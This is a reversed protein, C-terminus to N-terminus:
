GDDDDGADDDDSDDSADSDDGGDDRVTSAPPGSVPTAPPETTPPTPQPTAAVPEGAASPTRRPGAPNADPSPQSVAAPRDTAQREARTPAALGLAPWVFQAFVVLLVLHAPLLVQSLRRLDAADYTEVDLRNFLAVPKASVPLTLCFGAGATSVFALATADLATAQAVLVVLPLLV